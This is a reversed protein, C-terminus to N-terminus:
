KKKKTKKTKDLVAKDAKAKCEERSGGRAQCVSVVTAFLKQDYNKPLPM